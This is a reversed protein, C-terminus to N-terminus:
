IHLVPGPSDSRDQSTSGSHGSTRRPTGYLRLKAQMQERIEREKQLEVDMSYNLKSLEEIRCFLLIELIYENKALFISVKTKPRQSRFPTRGLTDPYFM